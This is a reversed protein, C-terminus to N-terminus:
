TQETVPTEKISIPGCLRHEIISRLQARLLFAVLAEAASQDPLFSWPGISFLQAHRIRVQEMEISAAVASLFM